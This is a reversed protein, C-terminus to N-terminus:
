LKKCKRRRYPENYNFRRLWEEDVEKNAYKRFFLDLPMDYGQARDWM